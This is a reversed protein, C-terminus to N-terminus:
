HIEEFYLANVGRGVSMAERVREGCLRRPTAFGLGTVWVGFCM